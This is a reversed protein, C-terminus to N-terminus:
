KEESLYFACAPGEYDVQYTAAGPNSSVGDSCNPQGSAGTSRVRVYGTGPKGDDLKSDIEQMEETTFVPTITEYGSDAGVAFTHGYNGDFMWTSGSMKPITWLSFGVGSMKSAPCNIGAQMDRNSASSYTVGTYSGSIMNALALHQWARPMEYNSDITNNGDGNCTLTGTSATTLAACTANYGDATTGAAAGWISVANVMDGPIADYKNQFERLAVKYKQSDSIVSRLEAQKILNAGTFVGGVLLAIITITISLELLTFGHTRKM